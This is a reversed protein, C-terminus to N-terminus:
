SDYIYLNDGDWVMTGDAPAGDQINNGETADLVMAAAGFAAIDAANFDASDATSFTTSNMYYPRLIATTLSASKVWGDADCVLKIGDTETPSTSLGAFVIAADIPVSAGGWDDGDGDTALAITSDSVTLDSSNVSTTAGGITVDGNLSISSDSAGINISGTTTTWLGVSSVSGTIASATINDDLDFTISNTGKTTTISDGGLISLEDSLLAIAETADADDKITLTTAVPNTSAATIRGQADVTISPISSADGYSDATVTTNDLNVTITQGAVVSSLGTGGSIDLEQSDLDVTSDTGSDAGITLTEATIQDNVYDIVAATTPIQDNSDNSAITDTANTIASAIFDEVAINSISNGAADADFTKHTLTAANDETLIKKWGM